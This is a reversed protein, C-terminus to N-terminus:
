CTVFSGIAQSPAPIEILKTKSSGITEATWIIGPEVRPTALITVAVRRSQHRKASRSLLLPHMRRLAYRASTRTIIRIVTYEVSLYYCFRKVRPPISISSVSRPNHANFSRAPSRDIAAQQYGANGVKARTSDEPPCRVPVNPDRSFPTNILSQGESGSPRQQAM